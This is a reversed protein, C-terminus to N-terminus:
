EVFATRRWRDAVAAVAGSLEEVRKSKWEGSEEVEAREGVERAEEM